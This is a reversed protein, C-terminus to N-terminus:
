EIDDDSRLDVIGVRHKFLVGHHPLTNLGHQGNVWVLTGDRRRTKLQFPEITGPAPRRRYFLCVINMFFISVFDHIM